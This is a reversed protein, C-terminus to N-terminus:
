AKRFRDSYWHEGRGSRAWGAAVLEKVFAVHAEAAAVNQDPEQAGRSRFARSEIPPDTGVYFHSKSYGRWWRIECELPGSEQIGPEAEVVHEDRRLRPSLVEVLSPDARPPRVRASPAAVAVSQGGRTARPIAPAAPRASAPAKRERAQDLSEVRVLREPSQTSRASPAPEPSSGRHRGRVSAAVGAAAAAAAGLALLIWPARTEEKPVAAPRATRSPPASDPAPAEATPETRPELPFESWLEGPTPAPAQVAATAGAVVGLTVIVTAITTVPRRM